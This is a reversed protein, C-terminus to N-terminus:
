SFSMSNLDTIVLSKTGIFNIFKEFINAYNGVEVISINQSLLPKDPKDPNDKDIKKMM